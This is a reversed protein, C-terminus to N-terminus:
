ALGDSLTTNSPVRCRPRCARDIDRRSPGVPARACLHCITRLLELPESSDSALSGAGVGKPDFAGAGDVGTTPWSRVTLLLFGIGSHSSAQSALKTTPSTQTAGM